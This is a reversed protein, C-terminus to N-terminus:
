HTGTILGLIFVFAGGLLGSLATAWIGLRNHLTDQAREASRKRNKIWDEVKDLRGAQKTIAVSLENVSNGWLEMAGRQQDLRRDLSDFRDRLLTLVEDDM